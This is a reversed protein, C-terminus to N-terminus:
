RTFVREPRPQTPLCRPNTRAVAGLATREFVRLHFTTEDNCPTAQSAASSATGAKGARGGGDNEDQECPTPALACARPAGREPDGAIPTRGHHEDPGDGGAQGRHL